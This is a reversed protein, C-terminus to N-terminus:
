GSSSMHDPHSCFIVSFSIGNVSSRASFIIKGQQPSLEDWWNFVLLANDVDADEFM